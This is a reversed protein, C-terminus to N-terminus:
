SNSFAESTEVPTEVLQLTCVLAFYSFHLATFMICLAFLLGTFMTHNNSNLFFPNNQNKPSFFSLLFGNTKTIEFDEFFQHTGHFCCYLIPLNMFSGM